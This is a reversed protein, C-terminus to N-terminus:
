SSCAAKEPASISLTYGALNTIPLRRLADRMNAARAPLYGYSDRTDGVVSSDAPTKASGATEVGRTTDFWWDELSRVGARLGHLLSLDKCSWESILAPTTLM